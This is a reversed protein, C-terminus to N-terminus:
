VSRSASVGPAVQERLLHTASDAHIPPSFLYGQGLRCGLERLAECQATKEIGQAAVEIKWNQGLKLLMEVVDRSARDSLLTAVLPRDIKLLDIFFSRLHTLSTSGTGYDDIATSVNLRQLQFLLDATHQPDTMAIKDTIELQLATPDIKTDRLIARIEELLHPSAFHPASVNVAIRLTGLAPYEVQWRCSQRCAELLVWQDVAAILGADEAIDLFRDPSILGHVPHQWRVLAEFGTIQRDELSVIPQYYVRLQRHNLATHLEDELQLRNVARTHMATDFLEARNGGLAQARRLATEADNVLDDSREITPDSLAIGISVTGSRPSHGEVHFPLALSSQIRNAIRMADSPDQIGELLITFGDGAFRALLQDSSPEGSRSVTDAGRISSDLRRAIEVLVRDAVAPGFDTNFDKFHDIDVLLVAYRFTSDRKAQSFGRQLREMFVRRNPLGTLADHLADHALKQEIEKRTTVDRNVIVLKDVEGKSNRITSATSELVRWSGNKHRIRYQLSQGVGTQRALRSAELVRARDDPHIQEFVPTRALETATYGLVKHYAPSNYLRRGKVNVLAIMDAANETIIKFLEARKASNRANVFIWIQQGIVIGVLMAPIIWGSDLSASLGIGAPPTPLM